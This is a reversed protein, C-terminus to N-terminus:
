TRWFNGLEDESTKKCIRLPGFQQKWHWGMLKRTMLYVPRGVEILLLLTTKDPTYGSDEM